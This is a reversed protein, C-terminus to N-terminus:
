RGQREIEGVEKERRGRMCVHVHLKNWTPGMSMTHKYRRVAENGGHQLPLRALSDAQSVDHGVRPHTRLATVAASVHRAHGQDSLLM